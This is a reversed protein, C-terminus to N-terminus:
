LLGLETATHHVITSLNEFAARAHSEQEFNYEADCGNVQSCFGRTVDESHKIALVGHFGIIRLKRTDITISDRASETEMGAELFVGDVSEQILECMNRREPDNAEYAIGLNVIKWLDKAEEISFSTTEKNM